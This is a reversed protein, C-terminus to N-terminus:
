PSKNIMLFFLTLVKQLIVIKLFVSIEKSLTRVEGVKQFRELLISTLYERFTQYLEGTPINPEQSKKKPLRRAHIGQGVMINTM